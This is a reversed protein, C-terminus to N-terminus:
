SFASTFAFLFAFCFIFTKLTKVIVAPKSVKRAERALVDGVIADGEISIYMGANLEM